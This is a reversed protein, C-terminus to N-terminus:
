SGRRSRTLGPLLKSLTLDLKSHVVRMLSNLEANDLKLKDGLNRRTDEVVQERAAAIWRAATARHVRYIGCIRDVSMGQVFHLRLIARERTSLRNLSEKLAAQFEERYRSRMLQLEPDAAGGALNELRDDDDDASARAEGRRSATAAVRVAVSRVWSKLPGRGAYQAVKPAEGAPPLVLRQRVTQLVEDVFSKPHGIRTLARMASRLQVREFAELGHRDGQVCACALYLDEVCTEPLSEQVPQDQPLREALYRLFMTEDLPVGPWTKVASDLRTRLIQAVEQRDGPAVRSELGARKVMGEASEESRRGARSEM